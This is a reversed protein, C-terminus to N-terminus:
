LSKVHLDSMKTKYSMYFLTMDFFDGYHSTLIAVKHHKDTKLVMQIINLEFKSIM